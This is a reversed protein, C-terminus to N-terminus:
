WKAQALVQELESRWERAPGLAADTKSTDLVSYAPRPAPRPFESTTVPHVPTQLGLTDRIAVAFEYWTCEGADTVHYTGNLGREVLGLSREALQVCSSPRGRQDHVVKLEPKTRLLGAITRVFNAGWPAYLWSTRLILSAAGSDRVLQEGLAKSRGYVSQPAIPADVPYPSTARGDFVYDTSYHVLRSGLTRVRQALEGVATGNAQMAASVEQEALDVKTYAACNVVLDWDATIKKGHEPNTLDFDSRAWLDHEIGRATLVRQWASALMGAGGLILVRKPTLEPM